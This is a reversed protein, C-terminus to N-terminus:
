SVLRISLTRFIRAPSSHLWSVTALAGALEPYDRALGEKSRRDDRLAEAHQTRQEYYERKEVVTNNPSTMIRASLSVFTSRRLLSAIAEVITFTSREWGSRGTVVSNMSAPPRSFGADKLHNLIAQLGILTNETQFEVTPAELAELVCFYSQGFADDCAEDRFGRQQCFCIRYPCRDRYRDELPQWSPQPGQV